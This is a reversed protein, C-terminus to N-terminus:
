VRSNKFDARGKSNLGLYHKKIKTYLYSPFEKSEGNEKGNTMEGVIRVAKRLRKATKQNM